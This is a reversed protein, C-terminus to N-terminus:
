GNGYSAHCDQCAKNIKNIASQFKPFAQDKTSQVAEQAGDILDKAWGKYDEEGTFEYSPHTVVTGLTAIITAESQIQELEGKFKSETAINSRMWESAKEIRKMVGARNAVEGFPREALVKDDSPANGDLVAIVNDVASQSKEYAERGLAKASENLQLGSDRVYKANPQWTVSDPYAAVINALAALVAGDVQLERYHGNYTGASQMAVTLHNRIRKIESQLQDISILDKWRNSEGGSTATAAPAPMETPKAAPQTETATPTATAVKASDQVIALPDDYFVDVPIDGLWKRGDADLTVATSKADGANTKGPKPKAGAGGTSTQNSAPAASGGGSCGTLALACALCAAFGFRIRQSWSTM